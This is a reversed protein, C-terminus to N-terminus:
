TAVTELRITRFRLRFSRSDLSDGSVGQSDVGRGSLADVVELVDVRGVLVWSPPLFGLRTGLGFFAGGARERVEEVDDFGTVM